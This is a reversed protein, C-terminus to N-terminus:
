FRVRIGLRARWISADEILRGTSPNLLRVYRYQCDTRTACVEAPQNGTLAPAADVGLVAVDSRRVLDAQILPAQAFSPGLHQAGWRDNFLNLLNEVDLVLRVGGLGDRDPNKLDHQVRFDWRQNWGSELQNRPVIAGPTLGRAGVLALFEPQFFSSAFVVNPDAFQGNTIAPVYIPDSSFPADLSPGGFLVNDTDPSRGPTLQFTYTYPSGSWAQGFLDFRTPSEGFLRREAGFRFSFRHATAFPSRGPSPNNQDADVTAERAGQATSGTGASVIRSQVFSYGASVEDRADGFRGDFRATLAMGGGGATNYLEIIDAEALAALNAYIPRGDPAVGITQFRLQNIDRWGIGRVSASWDGELTLGLNSSVALRARVAAKRDLPLAFDPALTATRRSITAAKLEDRLESPTPTFAGVQLSDQQASFIPPQYANAFWVLPEGGSFAGIGAGLELVDTPTYEISFRPLIVDQGKLSDLFRLQPYRSQLAAELFVPPNELIREFRLGGALRLQPSMAAELEIYGSAKAFAFETTADAVKGSAPGSYISVSPTQARIDSLSTYVYEGFGRQLFLNSTQYDLWGLGANWVLRDQMWTLNALAEVRTEQRTNISQTNPCGAELTHPLPSTSAHSVEFFSPSIRFLFSPTQTPGVCGASLDYRRANIQLDFALSQSPQSQLALTAAKLDRRNTPNAAAFRQPEAGVDHEEVTNFSAFGSFDSSEVGWNAKIFYRDTRRTALGTDQRAGLDMGYANRFATRIVEFMESNRLVERDAQAFQVPSRGVFQDASVVLGATGRLPLSAAVGLEFDQFPQSNISLRGSHDGTLGDYLGYAFAIADFRDGANKTTIAINGGSFASNKPSFAGTQVDVAEILELNLPGRATPSANFGLGFDNRFSAGDITIGSMRPSTGGICYGGAAPGSICTSRVLPEASLVSSIDRRIAPQNLIDAATTPNGGNISMTTPTAQRNQPRDLTIVGLDIAGPLSAPSRAGVATLAYTRAGLRDIHVTGPPFLRLLDQEVEGSLVLETALARNALSPEYILNVSALAAYNGLIDKSETEEPLARENPTLEQAHAAGFATAASVVM